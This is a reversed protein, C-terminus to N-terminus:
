AIKCTCFVTSLFIRIVVDTDIMLKLNYIAFRQNQLGTNKYFYYKDGHQAPCSYKPFDWLQKLRDHIDKRVPCSSLFPRTIANQADVFAKTEESDADELWRYPDKVQQFSFFYLLLLFGNAWFYLDVPILYHTHPDYHSVEVGHYNDVVTEDRRVEPYQFKTM